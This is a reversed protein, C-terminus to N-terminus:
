RKLTPLDGLVAQVCRGASAFAGNISAFDCHDGAVYLGPRIRPNIWVPQMRDPSQLPLARPLTYTKIHRWGHAVPGYWQVLQEIVKQELNQQDTGLVTCSILAGPRSLYEPCVDSLVCLHQVPHDPETNLVLIPRNVPSKEALFYLCTTGVWPDSRPLDTPILKSASTAETAVVIADASLSYGNDLKVQGQEISVVRSNLHVTEPPIQHVLQDIISQMGRAPLTANGRAFMRFTFEFVRSTTQLQHELFVGGYFPRFFNQIIQDSFGRRRLYELTSTNDQYLDTWERNLLNNRLRIIRIKDGLSALPSFITKISSFPRRFPDIWEYFRNNARILAGPIFSQLRLQAHDILAAAEPYSDLYVQFGRDLTIGDIQDSGCRGGFRSSAEFLCFPVGSRHLRVACALGALGGGIIVVNKKM